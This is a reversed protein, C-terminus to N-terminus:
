YGLEILVEKFMKKDFMGPDKLGKTAPYKVDLLKNSPMLLKTRCDSRAQRTLEKGAKDNDFFFIIPTDDMQHLLRLELKKFFSGWHSVGLLCIVTFSDKIGLDQLNQITRMLDYPGEVLILGAQKEPLKFSALGFPHLNPNALDLGTSNYYKIEQESCLRAFVSHDGYHLCLRSFREQRYRGRRGLWLRVVAPKFTNHVYSQPSMLTDPRIERYGWKDWAWPEETVIGVGEKPATKVPLIEGELLPKLRQTEDEEEMGDYVELGLKKALKNWNGRGEQCAFCKFLGPKELSVKLSPHTDM